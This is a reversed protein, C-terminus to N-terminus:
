EFTMEYSCSFKEKAELSIFDKKESLEDSNALYDTHGMWPEICVFPAGGVPSWLGLFPMEKRNVSVSHSNKFTKLTVKDSVVKSLIIADEKFLELSLPVVEANFAKEEGTLLVDPTAILRTAGVKEFEFYYDEFQEGEILPCNFAPHAGITFYMKTTGCNEVEYTVKITNKILTYTINLEFEFPYKEKTQENAYLCFVLENEKQIVEDFTMDRAFGHQTLHYEKGEYTYTNNNVKGVIPFLVPAQRGWYKKDGCWLYELGEKNKVSTLEAGANKATVTLYENKLQYTM